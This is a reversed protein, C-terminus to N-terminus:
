QNRVLWESIITKVLVTPDIGMEEAKEKLTERAACCLGSIDNRILQKIYGQTSEVSDLKELIDADTQLNFKLCIRKCHTSDYKTQRITAKTAM